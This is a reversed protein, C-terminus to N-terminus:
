PQEITKAKLIYASDSTSYELGLSECIVKLANDYPMGDLQGTFTKNGISGNMLIRKGYIKQLSIIVDSLPTNEFDLLKQATNVPHFDRVNGFREHQVDFTVASGANLERTERTSLKVFAIKGKSVSVDIIKLEKHITFSTGIDKIRTTGLEVIFPKGSNHVVDFTAEGEHMLMTRGSRNYAASVEIKTNPKLTIVSGDVLTVKKQMNFATEYIVPHNKQLVFWLGIGAVAIFVAAISIINRIFIKRQNFQGPIVRTEENGQYDKHMKAHLARWAEEENAMQYFKFDEMGTQWLEKIRLYKEKNEAGSSIWQQLQLELEASLSGTLSEAILDWPPNNQPSKNM